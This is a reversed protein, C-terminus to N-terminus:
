GQILINEELDWEYDKLIKKYRMVLNNSMNEMIHAIENAIAFPEEDYIIKLNEPRLHKLNRSYEEVAQEAEIRNMRSFEFVCDTVVNWFCEKEDDTWKDKSSMKKIRIFDQNYNPFAKKAKIVAARDNTALVSGLYTIKNAGPISYSVCYDFVAPQVTQGIGELEKPEGSIRVAQVEAGPPLKDWSEHWQAQQEADQKDVAECNFLHVRSQYRESFPDFVAAYVSYLEKAPGIQMEDAYNPWQANATELATIEDEAWLSGVPRPETFPPAHFIEFRPM